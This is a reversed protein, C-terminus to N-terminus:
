EFHRSLVIQAILIFPELNDENPYVSTRNPPFFYKLLGDLKTATTSTTEPCRYLYTWVLRMLGNMIPVRHSKEQQTVNIRLYVLNFPDGVKLKSVANEFCGLWYKRFYNEPAVCLSTILLPFAVNWYRPKTAMERAKPYIVETAKAWMPNNTEAQATQLRIRDTQRLTM